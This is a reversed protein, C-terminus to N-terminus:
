PATWVAENSKGSEIGGTNYATVAFYYTHRSQLNTVTYATVLGVDTPTGYVGSASGVYMKYGALDSESNPDWELTVQAVPTVEFTCTASGARSESSVFGCVDLRYTRPDLPNASTNLTISSGMGVSVGNLYWVYTTNGLEPPVSATVTMAQGIALEAAQGTMTVPVPSNMELTINVIISGTGKNVKAFAISGSTTADAVILATDVAGAVLQGNDLLKVVLTYYGNPIANNSCSAQGPSPQSFALDIATGQSPVLQSQLTPTPVDAPDWTVALELTGPGVMPLMAIDVSQTTGTTVKTSGTGYTVITGSANRGEVVITWDGFVLGKQTGSTGTFSMFFTAGDPGSGSVDYSAASLDTSPVMNKASEVAVRITLEGLRLGQLDKLLGFCSALLSCAAALALRRLLRGVGKAVPRHFQM